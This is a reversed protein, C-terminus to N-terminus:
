IYRATAYRSVDAEHGERGTGPHEHIEATVDDDNTRWQFIKAVKPPQQYVFCFLSIVLIQFCGNFGYIMILHGNKVDSDYVYMEELNCEVEEENMVNGLICHSM